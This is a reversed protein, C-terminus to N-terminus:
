HSHEHRTPEDVQHNEMMELWKCNLLRFKEAQIKKGGIRMMSRGEGGEGEVRCYHQCTKDGSRNMLPLFLHKTPGDHQSLNRIMKMVLADKLKLARKMLIKLGNGSFPEPTPLPGEPSPTAVPPPSAAPSAQPAANGPQANSELPTLQAVAQPICDTDAFMSRFKHDMSISYLISMSLQRQGEDALLSSLKPIFGAQVMQNHLSTDFSLNFLLRLTADLLEKYDSPVLRALKEVVLIKQKDNDIKSGLFISHKKLITIVVLLLENDKRDVIKLLMHVTNKNRMKLETHTDEGLNLLLSLAVAPDFIVTCTVTM